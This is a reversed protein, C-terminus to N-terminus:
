TTYIKTQNTKQTSINTQLLGIGVLTTRPVYLGIKDLWPSRSEDTAQPIKWNQTDVNQPEKPSAESKWNVPTEDKEYQFSKVAEEVLDHRIDLDSVLTDIEATTFVQLFQSLKICDSLMNTSMGVSIGWEQLTTIHMRAEIAEARTCNKLLASTLVVDIKTLIRKFLQKMLVQNCDYAIFLAHLSSLFTIFDHPQEIDLEEDHLLFSKLWSSSKKLLTTGGVTKQDDEHKVLVSAKELHGSLVHLLNSLTSSIADTIECQSATSTLILANDM